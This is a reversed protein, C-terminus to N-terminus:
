KFGGSEAAGSYKRGSAREEAISTVQRSEVWARLSDEPYRIENGRLRIWPPGFGARRWEQLTYKSVDLLEAAKKSKHLKEM